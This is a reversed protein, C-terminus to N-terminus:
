PFDNSKEGLWSRPLLSVNLYCHQDFIALAFVIEVRIDRERMAVNERARVGLSLGGCDWSRINRERVCCWSGWEGLALGNGGVFDRASAACLSMNVFSSPYLAARFLVLRAGAQIPVIAFIKFLDDRWWRGSLNGNGGVHLLDVQKSITNAAVVTNHSQSINLARTM